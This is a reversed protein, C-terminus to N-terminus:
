KRVFIYDREHKQDRTGAFRFGRFKNSAAIRQYLKMRSPESFSASFQFTEPEMDIIFDNICDIVFAFVQMPTGSGTKTYIADDEEGEAFSIVWTQKGEKHAGFVITRGGVEGKLVYTYPNHKVLEKQVVTDFSEVLEYLRM